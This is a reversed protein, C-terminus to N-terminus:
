IKGENGDEPLMEYLLEIILILNRLIHYPDKVPLAVVKDLPRGKRDRIQIWERVEPDTNPFVRFTYEGVKQHMEWFAADGTERYLRLSTYLAESHVWWLKSEWDSRVLQVTPGIETNGDDSPNWGNVGVFHFLGGWQEDWGLQFTKKVIGAIKPLMEHNDLIEMADLMFWMDEITHGPNIHQGLLSDIFTNEQTIVEHLINDADTFHELVDTCFGQLQARIGPCLEQEFLQAAHYLECCVNTLIMPMGHARYQPALPYPLTNFAGSEVRKIISEYLRLGFIWADKDRAVGAYQVFANVVFCDAYISMDLQECGDVHKPAGKEDMLFTCRWDNEGLLCHRTLFDKGSKALRLFEQKEKQHFTNGRMKALKAWVWVFRGQSWTYKDRSVLHKGTNDFCNYFGGYETDECRPQWFPLIEKRLVNEYFGLLTRVDWANM